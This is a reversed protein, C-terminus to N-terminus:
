NNHNTTKPILDILRLYLIYASGYIILMLITTEDYPILSLNNFAKFFISSISYLLGYSAFTIELSSQLNKSWHHEISRKKQIELLLTIAWITIGISLLLHNISISTM